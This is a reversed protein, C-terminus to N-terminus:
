HLRSHDLCSLLRVKSGIKKRRRERLSETQESALLESNSFSRCQEATRIEWECGCASLLSALPIEATM